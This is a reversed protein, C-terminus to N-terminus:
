KRWGTLAEMQVFIMRKDGSPFGAIITKHFNISEPVDFIPPEWLCQGGGLDHTLRRQSGEDLSSPIYVVAPKARPFRKFKISSVM